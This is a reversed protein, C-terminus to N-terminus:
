QLTQLIGEYNFVNQYNKDEDITKGTKERHLENMISRQNPTFSNWKLKYVRNIDQSYMKDEASMRGEAIARKANVLFAEKKEKDKMKKYRDSKILSGVYLDLPKLTSIAIARDYVKDGTRSFVKYPDLDLKVFEKEIAQRGPTPRVGTLTNFFEGSRVPAKDSFSPQYEPLYEKLIPLKNMLRQAAAQTLPDFGTVTKEIKSVEGKTEREAQVKAPYYEGIINPDRAKQGEESFLDLYQYVPTGPTVARGVFDGLLKGVAANFKDAEKGEANEYSKELQDLLYSSSGAPMKELGSVAKIIDSVKADSEKGLSQKAFYDGMMMYPYMPFVGRIDTTSGDTNKMEYPLTDQNEKRYQYAAAIAATGVLGRSFKQMGQRIQAQGIEDDPSEKVLRKAGSAVDTLGSSIGIPSYRYQFAIANTMFRPFTVALSGGPLTEWFKVWYHALSEGIAEATAGGEKLEFLKGEQETAKFSKQKPTYSFTAKLTEDAANQFISPPITKNNAMVDYMDVGVRNLQRQVSAVFIARRFIADQAVNFTNAIQSAKTLSQNGSEQLASFLKSQLAPNHELLKDTVSATFGSNSLRLYTLTLFSDSIIDKIGKTMDAVSAKGTAVATIGRGVSYITNEILNSAVDATLAIGTGQINRITTGLGSVVLAKTERELRNIARLGTGLYSAVSNTPEAAADIIKKAEPDIDSLKKITKSLTSYSNLVKGADGVSTLIADAFEKPTINARSLAEEFVNEDLEDMKTVINQVAASVKQGEKPLYEPAKYMIYLATEIAKDHVSKKIQAETLETEPSLANLVKRGEFMDFNKELDQQSKDFMEKLKIFAPDQEFPVKKGKLTAELAKAGAIGDYTKMISGVEAAGAFAGLAASLGYQLYDAQDRQVGAKRAVAQDVASQGVGITAELGGAIAMQKTRSAITNKIAEKAILSKARAAVGFGVVNAPDTAVSFISEALPRIGPQGGESFWSPVSNFLNHARAAKVVEEPKANNLWILEPVANMTTNWEVQRMSTMWRKTYDEDSEGKRQKGADGFRTEAYDKIVKLNEPKTYLDKFPIEKAEVNGVIGVQKREEPTGAIRQIEPDEQYKFPTKQEPYVVPLDVDDQKEKSYIVPLDEDQQADKGYVVPLDPELDAPAGTVQVASGPKQPPLIAGVVPLPGAM